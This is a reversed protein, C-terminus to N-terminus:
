DSSRFPWWGRSVRWTLRWIPSWAASSRASRCRPLTVKLVFVTGDEPPTILGIEALVVVVIGSWELDVGRTVPTPAFRWVSIPIIAMADTVYGLLLLFM